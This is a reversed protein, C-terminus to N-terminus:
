KGEIQQGKICTVSEIMILFSNCWVLHNKKIAIDIPISGNYNIRTLISTDEKILEEIFTLDKQGENIYQHICDDDEHYPHCRLLLEVIETNNLEIAFHIPLKKRSTTKMVALGPMVELLEKVMETYGLISAWHIPLIGKDDELISLLTSEIEKSRELTDMNEPFLFVNHLQRSLEDMNDVRTTLVDTSSSIMSKADDMANKAKKYHYNGILMLQYLRNM